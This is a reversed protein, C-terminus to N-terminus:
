SESECRKHSAAEAAKSVLQWVTPATSVQLFGACQVSSRTFLRRGEQHVLVMMKKKQLPLRTYITITTRSSFAIIQKLLEGFTGTLHSQAQRMAEHALCLVSHTTKLYVTKNHMPFCRQNDRDCVCMCVCAFVCVSCGIFLNFADKKKKKWERHKSYNEKSIKTSWLRRTQSDVAM